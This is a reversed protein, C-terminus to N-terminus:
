KGELMEALIHIGQELKDRRTAFSLRIHTDRDSFVAGPITLVNREIARECFETGTLGLAEPLEVFAYFAGGPTPLSAVGGLVSVVMDRRSEYEAVHESIDADMAALSGWQAISPPCVFTYMQAKAMEALNIRERIEVM